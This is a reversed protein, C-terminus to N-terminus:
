ECATGDGDRDLAKRYGPEGVHLPAAHAAKAAACNKYYVPAPDDPAPDPEEAPATTEEVVPPAAPPAPTAPPAPPAPTPADITGNCPASWLGVASQKATDQLGRLSTSVADTAYKAFGGTIAATAYDTGDPLTLAVGSATDTTLRVANGVLGATAWTQTEAAHCNTGTPVTLGLVHVTRHTGDSGALELTAGDTVKDVTFTVPPPSAPAAVPRATPPEPARGFIAGLVFLVAFVGLAALLWKPFRTRKAPNPHM